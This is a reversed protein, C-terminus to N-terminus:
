VGIEHNVEAGALKPEPKRAKGTLRRTANSLLGDSGSSALGSALTPKKNRISLFVAIIMEM